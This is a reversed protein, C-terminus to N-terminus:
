YLFFVLGMMGFIVRKQLLYKSNNEFFLAV